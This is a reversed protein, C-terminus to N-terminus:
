GKIIGRRSCKSHVDLPGLSVDRHTVTHITYIPPPVTHITRNPNFTHYLISIFFLSIEDDFIKKGEGRYVGIIGGIVCEIVCGVVSTNRASPIPLHPLM